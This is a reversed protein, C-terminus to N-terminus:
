VTDTKIANTGDKGKHIYFFAADAAKKNKNVIHTM